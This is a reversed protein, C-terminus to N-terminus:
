YEDIWELDAFHEPPIFHKTDNIILVLGREPIPANVRICPLGHEETTIAPRAGMASLINKIETVAKM